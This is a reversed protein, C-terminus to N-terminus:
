SSGILFSPAIMVVVNKRELTHLKSTLQRVHGSNSSMRSKIATSTVQLNSSSGILFSPAIVDM